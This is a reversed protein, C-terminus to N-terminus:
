MGKHTECWEQIKEFTAQDVTKLPIGEDMKIGDGLDKFMNDITKSQRAIGVKVPFSHNDQTIITVMKENVDDKVEVKDNIEEKVDVDEKVDVEDEVKIQDIVETAM